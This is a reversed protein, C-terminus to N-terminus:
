YEDPFLVTTASRDSETIIWIKKVGEYVSLIQDGQKVAIENEAKDVKCTDGWDGCSHKKISQTVQKAFAKNQAMLDNVGRTLVIQGLKFLM